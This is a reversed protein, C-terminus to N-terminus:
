ADLVSTRALALANQRMGEYGRLGFCSYCECNSILTHVNTLQM